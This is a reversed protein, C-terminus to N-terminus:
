AARRDRAYRCADRLPCAACRPRLARCTRRGHRVLYLHLARMRTEPIFPELAPGIRDAPPKADVWGLRRTVREVHTDVPMVPRDLAFLLVCAATKAGVGPLGTLWARAEPTPMQQLRALSLRGERERILRLVQRIRPAKTHALGGSRIAHEIDKVPAGAAAPWNRFIRKLERFARWSNIDSTNQSLITQILADLPLLRRQPPLPGYARALRRFVLDADRRTM